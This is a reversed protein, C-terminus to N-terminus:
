LLWSWVLSVLKDVDFMKGPCTKNEEFNRHGYIRNPSIILGDCLGAIYKAGIAIMEDPPPETDYDGIFCVGLSMANMGGARCHAGQVNIPRGALMEYQDGVREIGFHYGIDSWGLTKTHYERIAAWSVTGSDKTASCHVIISNPKM